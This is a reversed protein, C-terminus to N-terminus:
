WGPPREGVIRRLSAPQCTTISHVGMSILSRMDEERDVTWVSVPLYRLRAHSVLQESCLSFEVNIGSCCSSVAQRCIREMSREHELRAGGASVNLLVQLEQCQEKVREARAGDCGSVITRDLLGYRKVARCLGTISRDDKLDLNMAAPVGGAAELAEELRTIKMQPHSSLIQGNKELELLEQLTLSDLAVRKGARTLVFSDHMLIVTGDRTSRIDIEVADAGSRIGQLM